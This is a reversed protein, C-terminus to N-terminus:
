SSIVPITISSVYVDGTFVRNVVGKHYSEDYAREFGPVRGRGEAASIEVRLRYGASIRATAPMLEVEIPVIEGPTLPLADKQRHTHWPREATSLKPDLARHSAKLVGWTLPAVSGPERTRYQVEREGDFVRVAVFVDADTSSSSVWLSARFHGALKIDEKLPEPDFVALAVDEVPGGVDASYISVGKDRPPVDSLRGGPNEGSADLFFKRYETGKLPWSDSERWEFGGDGTRIILRVPPPEKKPKKGKLHEDFFEELDCKDASMLAKGHYYTDDWPHSRLGGVFDVAASEPNKAPGVTDEFWWRRYNDLLIGGQYALDRYADADSALPAIAKLAPPQLAAVNWQITANYSAGYLGVMGNSWPQQAAWQIADYYDEAEQRSFPDLKGPSKGVGRGDVRIVVYGRPVWDSSNASVCSESYRMYPHIPSRDKEYWAAEREESDNYDTETHISGITFARGYISLRLLVPYVGKDVPHFVDALLYTGDRLPVPVDRIAKIGLLGRRTHNRAEAAGRFRRGLQEFVTRVSPSQEFDEVSTTFIIEDANKATEDIVVGNHLDAERGLSLVFRARNITEPLLVDVVVNDASNHLSALTLSSAAKAVGITLKGISFTVYEGELYLFKGDNGTVGKQSTTRYSLGIFPGDNFHGVLVKTSM